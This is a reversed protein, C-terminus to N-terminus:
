VNSVVISVRTLRLVCHLNPLDTHLTTKPLQPIRQSDGQQGERGRRDAGVVERDDGVQDPIWLRERTKKNKDTMGSKGGETM